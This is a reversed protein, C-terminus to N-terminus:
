PGVPYSAMSAVVAIIAACFILSIVTAIIKIHKKM